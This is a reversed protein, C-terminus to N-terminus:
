IHVTVFKARGPARDPEVALHESHQRVQYLVM